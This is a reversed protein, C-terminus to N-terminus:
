FHLYDDVEEKYMQQKNTFLYTLLLKTIQKLLIAEIQKVYLPPWPWPWPWPCSTWPWSWPWPSCISDELTRSAL